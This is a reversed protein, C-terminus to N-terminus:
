SSKLMASSSSILSNREPSVNGAVYDDDRSAREQRAPAAPLKITFTSGAGLTSIAEISGKMAHVLSGTIALGLGAGSPHQVRGPTGRYLREFIHPLENPPIGDGADTVSVVVQGHEARSSLTIRENPDTHEVANRVLNTLAQLLRQPDALAYLGSEADVRADRQALLMARLLAERLVLEVEVPESGLRLGDDLRALLLLDEVVHAMRDLEETAVTLSRRTADSNPEGALLELQGRAITLPTRLEHAADALLRQQSHFAQELRALMRDFAAALRGVEDNPGVKKIRRSLDRAAEIVETQRTIRALPRLSRRVIALGLLAAFLIGVGSAWGIARLVAAQAREVHERYALLVLTGVQQRDTRLPITLGRVPGERGNVSWWRGQTTTLLVRANPVEFLDRGGSSTLVQRGVRVAAMDGQELPQEALWTRAARLVGAQGPAAAPGREFSRAAALLQGDVVRDLHSRIVLSTMAAVILLTAAVLLVFVAVLRVALPLSAPAEAAHSIVANAPKARASM